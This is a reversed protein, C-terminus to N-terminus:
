REVVRLRISRQDIRGATTTIQYTVTATAGATGGAVWATTRSGSLVPSAAETVGDYTVVVASLADGDDLWASWDLAYDLTADPDKSYTAIV